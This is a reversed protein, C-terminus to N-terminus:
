RVLFPNVARVAGYVQGHALDETYGREARMREALLEGVFRSVSTQQQAALVRAERALDEPLTITVNKMGRDEHPVLNTDINRGAGVPKRQAGETSCFESIKNEACFDGRSRFSGKTSKTHKTTSFDMKVLGMFAPSVQNVVFSVFLVFSLNIVV